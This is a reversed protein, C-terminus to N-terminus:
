QAGTRRDTQGDTEVAGKAFIGLVVARYTDTPGLYPELQTIPDTRAEYFFSYLVIFCTIQQSRAAALM